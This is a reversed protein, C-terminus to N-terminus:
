EKERAIILKLGQRDVIQAFNGQSPPVLGDDLFEASWDEGDITVRTQFRNGVKRLPKTLEVRAPLKVSPLAKWNVMFLDGALAFTVLPLLSIFGAKPEIAFAYVVTVPYGLVAVLWYKPVTHAQFRKTLAFIFGRSIFLILGGVAFAVVLIGTAVILREALTM